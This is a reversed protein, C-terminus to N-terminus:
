IKKEKTNLIYICDCWPINNSGEPVVPPAYVSIKDVTVANNKQSYNFYM